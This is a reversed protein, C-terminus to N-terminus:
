TRSEKIRSRSAALYSEPSDKVLEVQYLRRDMLHLFDMISGHDVVLKGNVTKAKVHFHECAKQLRAPDIGKTRQGRISALSRAARSHKTAYAEIQSFDVFPLDRSIAKVNKPAAKCVEEELEAVYEFGIPRLIQVEEGDVLLDFDRDLKFINEHVLKLADSFLQILRNKLVGKFATARRIATLREGKGDSMRAFYCFVNEPISLARPEMPLNNADHIARINAAFDDNLPLRLNEKGGHKESPEYLVPRGGAEKLEGRTTVVMERLAGQIEDDIPVLAYHEGQKDEFGVGFEILQATTTDFQASM